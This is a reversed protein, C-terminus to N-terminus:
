FDTVKYGETLKIKKSLAEALIENTISEKFIKKKPIAPSDM